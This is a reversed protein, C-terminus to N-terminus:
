NKDLNSDHLLCYYNSSRCSSVLFTHILPHISSLHIPLLHITLYTSLLPALSPFLMAICSVLIKRTFDLSTLRFCLCLCVLPLLLPPPQLPTFSLSRPSDSSHFGEGRSSALEAGGGEGGSLERQRQLDRRELTDKSSYQMHAEAQAQCLSGARPLSAQKEKRQWGQDDVIVVPPTSGLM